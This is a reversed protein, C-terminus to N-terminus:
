TDIQEIKDVAGEILSWAFDRDKAALPSEKVLYDFAEQPETNVQDVQFLVKFALERAKRRSM